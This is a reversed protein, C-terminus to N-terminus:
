KMELFLTWTNHSSDIIQIEDGDVLITYNIDDESVNTIMADSGAGPYQIDEGLTLSRFQAKALLKLAKYTNLKM